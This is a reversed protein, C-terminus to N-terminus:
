FELRVGAKWRMGFTDFFVPNTPYASVLVTTTGGPAVPPKSDFLNDISGFIEARRGKDNGLSIAYSMALNVYTRAPIRNINVSNPLTPAYGPDDPGIWESNLVGKGVHRVTMTANFRDADYSILANWMWKPTPYFDGGEVAPGSQGAYNITPVAASQKVQFDYQHNLLLRVDLAGNMSRSLDALALRWSAEFDFGRIAIRGVNAQGADIRTINMPSAFTV